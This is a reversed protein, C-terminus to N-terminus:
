TPGIVRWFSADRRVEAARRIVAAAAENATAGVGEMERAQGDVLCAVTIRVPGSGEFDIAEVLVGAELVRELDAALRESLAAEEDDRDTM